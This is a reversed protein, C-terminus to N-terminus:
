SSILAYILIFLILLLVLGALWFVSVPIFGLFPKGERKKRGPVPGAAPEQEDEAAMYGCRPCGGKFFEARDTYGCSPCKVAKFRVGCEPCSESERDVERGCNYCFFGM